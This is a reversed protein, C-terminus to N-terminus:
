LVFPNIIRLGDDLVMGHQLDESLVVKCGHRGASAVILSDYYSFGYRKSIRIANGTDTADLPVVSLFGQIEALTAEIHLFSDPFKRRTVNCFENLVQVSAMVQGSELLNTAVARKQEDQTSYRYLLINTDVFYDAPM